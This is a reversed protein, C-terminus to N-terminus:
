EAYQLKSKLEILPAVTDDATISYSTDVTFPEGDLQSHTPNVVVGGSPNVVYPSM